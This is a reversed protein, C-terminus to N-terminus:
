AHEMWATVHTKENFQLGNKLPLLSYQMQFKCLKDQSTSLFWTYSNTESNQHSNPQMVKLWCKQL